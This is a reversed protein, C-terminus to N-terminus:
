KGEIVEEIYERWVHLADDDTYTNSKSILGQEELKSVFKFINLTM